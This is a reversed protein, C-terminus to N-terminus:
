NCNDCTLKNRCYATLRSNGLRVRRSVGGNSTERSPEKGARIFRLDCLACAFLDAAQEVAVRHHHSTKRMWRRNRLCWVGGGDCGRIDRCGNVRELASLY